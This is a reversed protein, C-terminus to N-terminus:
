RIREFFVDPIKTPEEFRLEEFRERIQEMYAAVKSELQPNDM